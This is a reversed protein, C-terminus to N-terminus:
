PNLTFMYSYTTVWNWTEGVAGTVILDVTQTGTDVEGTFTVSASAGNSKSPNAQIMGILTANGGVPRYASFYVTGSIAEDYTSKYGNIKAEIYVMTKEALPITALVTDTDDTTQTEDQATRWQSNLAGGTLCDIVVAGTGKTTLSIDVNADTGGAFLGNDEMTLTTSASTNTTIDYGYISGVDAIINGGTTRINGTVTINPGIAGGSAANDVHSM